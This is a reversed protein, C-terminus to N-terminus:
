QRTRHSRPQRIDGSRTHRTAPRRVVARGSDVRQAPAQHPPPDRRILEMMAHSAKDFGSRYAEDREVGHKYWQHIRGMAYASSVVFGLTLILIIFRDGPAIM